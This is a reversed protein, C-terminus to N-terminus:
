SVIGKPFQMTICHLSGHQKILSNCDVTYVKRDPFCAAITKKAQEDKLFDGYVPILVGQNFVLFNAYTAPLRNGEEDYRAPAMPLPVLNYPSGNLQSFSKLQDEMRKLAEYHIDSKDECHVYAITEHNCFRALTDIHSDTDDGELYGHDLWLVRQLGFIEKLAEETSPRDLQPNRNPSLLCESTTLLTGQGDTELAGGEIALGLSVVPTNGFVGNAVLGKTILNDLNAPFKLGWGNFIFDLLIYQNGVQITIANHDRAWTDNSPLSILRLNTSNAGALLQQVRPVDDCVVVAIQHRSVISIIEVFTPVVEDLYPAWDSEKHPFTFAIASQPAWEPPFIRKENAM